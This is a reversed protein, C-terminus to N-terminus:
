DRTHTGDANVASSLVVSNLSHRWETALPSEGIFGINGSQTNINM